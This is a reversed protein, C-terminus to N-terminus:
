PAIFLIYILGFLIFAISAVLLVRSLIKYVMAKRFGGM